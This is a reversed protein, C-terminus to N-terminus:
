FSFFVYLACFLSGGGGGGVFFHIFPSYGFIQVFSHFRPFLNTILKLKPIQILFASYHLSGEPDPLPTDQFVFM